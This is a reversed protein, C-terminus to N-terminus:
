KYKRVSISALSWNWPDLSKSWKSSDPYVLRIPGGQDYPIDLGNRKIALYGNAAMFELATNVYEYNNLAKTVVKEGSKIEMTKFLYSLRIVSFQQRKKVFPEFLSIKIPKLALLDKMTFKQSKSSGTVVLIPDNPGAPDIAGAGYPNSVSPKPSSTKETGAAGSTSLFSITAIVIVGVISLKRKLFHHM